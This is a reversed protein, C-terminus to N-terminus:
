VARRRAVVAVVLFLGALGFTGPEPVANSPASVLLNVRAALFPGLALEHDTPDFSPDNPSVSYLDYYV